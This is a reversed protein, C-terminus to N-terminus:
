TVRVRGNNLAQQLAEITLRGRDGDITDRYLGLRTLWTQEAKVSRVGFFKENRDPATRNAVLFRQYGGIFKPGLVAHKRQDAEIAGDYFDARALARQLETATRHAFNGDVRLPLFPGSAAAPVGNGPSVGHRSFAAVPDQPRSARDWTEFHLHPGTQIGTADSFGVLEGEKVRDGKRVSPLVHDYLQAEGDPNRIVAGNGTRLPARGSSTDGPVQMSVSKEVTGAFAAFVPNGLTGGSRPRIDVGAHVLQGGSRKFKQSISGDFPNQM